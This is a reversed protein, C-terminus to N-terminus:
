FPVRRTRASSGFDRRGTPILTTPRPVDVIRRRGSVGFASRTARRYAVLCACVRNALRKGRACAPLRRAHALATAFTDWEHALILTVLHGDPRSGGCEVRAAISPSGGPGDEDLGIDAVASWGGSRTAITPEAPPILAISCTSSPSGASRGAATTITSCRMGRRGLTRWLM